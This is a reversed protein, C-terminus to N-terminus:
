TEIGGHVHQQSNKGEYGEYNSQKHHANTSACAIKKVGADRLVGSARLHNPTMIM